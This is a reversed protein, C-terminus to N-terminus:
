HDCDHSHEKTHTYADLFIHAVHEDVLQYEIRRGDRTGEVLHADRLIRLHHSVLPQSSRLLEVLAGVDAPGSILRHVISARMPHALAAFLRIVPDGDQHVVSDM